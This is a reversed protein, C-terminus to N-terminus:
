SFKRLAQLCNTQFLSNQETPGFVRLADPDLKSPSFFKEEKGPLEVKLKNEDGQPLSNNTTEKPSEAARATGEHSSDPPKSNKGRETEM